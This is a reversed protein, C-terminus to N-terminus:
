QIRFNKNQMEAFYMSHILVTQYNELYIELVCWYDNENFERIVRFGKVFFSGLRNKYYLPKYKTLGIKERFEADQICDYEASAEKQAIM